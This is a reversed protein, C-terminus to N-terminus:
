EGLYSWPINNEDLIDVFENVRMSRVDLLVNVGKVTKGKVHFAYVSESWFVEKFAKWSTQPIAIKATLKTPRIKNQRDSAM